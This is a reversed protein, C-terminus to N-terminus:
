RTTVPSGPASVSAAIRTRVQFRPDYMQAWEGVMASGVSEVSRRLKKKARVELQRARERSIGLARGIEALSLEEDRDAMLRRQVIYRERLDLEALATAVAVEVASARRADALLQEPNAADELEELRTTTTDRCRPEDFSVDQGDLRQIMKQIRTVSMGMRTALEGQGADGAGFLVAVRARERRFKFFVQSRMPGSTGGVISRTRIIFALMQARVWHAAYTGFRIGRDPDFKSLALVLGCNGEAVLEAIPVGYHRYKVALNNVTRLQARVLADAAGRDGEDRWRRALRLEDELHLLQKAPAIHFCHKEATSASLTM